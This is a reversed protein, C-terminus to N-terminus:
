AAGRVPQTQPCFDKDEGPLSYDYPGRHVTPMVPWNGHPPPSPTTWELTTAEWPNDGAPEGKFMAVFFTVIFPIQSALLGLLGITSLVHYGQTGALHPFYSPDSIRRQHGMLGIVFQPLFTLNFFFFTGAFHLKGLGESMKRGFFKPYWHYLGAFSALFTTPFLAYHFHAIVFYTDHIYVDAAASGNLIGTVGGLLFTVLAGLAFLMATTFRISGKYLTAIYAFLTIALPVSIMITTLSFPAALRPDIGSVFQHHAWVIFSLLGTALTSYVIMRYGFLPKRSHATIVETLIGLAPLLIVYVEPHGFFWFLHQFLLPDGGAAPVFFGAGLHRDMLLMVAGAILPGVSMMFLVSAVVIMWVALPVDFLRMGKTRMNLMTTIFNIGGLLFAAFELAVAAIWLDVGLTVGTGASGGSLPPYTTWGGAAAGGHVFFSAILIISAPLFIWYSLANLKPFAMDPAGIMLPILLNGFAALLVPMAVFFVMITGHMTILANYQAAGVAGYGPVSHQPWALQMRFVYAAFGGVLAMLLGTILYQKGIMKHDTSIVYRWFFSQPASM